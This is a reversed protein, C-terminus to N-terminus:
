HETEARRAPARDIQTDAMRCRGARRCRRATQEAPTGDINRQEIEKNFDLIASNGETELM